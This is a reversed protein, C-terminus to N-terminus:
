ENQQVKEAFERPVYVLHVGNGTQVGWQSEVLNKSGKANNETDFILLTGRDMPHMGLFGPRSKLWKIFKRYGKQRFPNLSFVGIGFAWAEHDCGPAPGINDNM